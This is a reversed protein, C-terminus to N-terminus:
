QNLYIINSSIYFKLERFKHIDANEVLPTESNKSAIHLIYFRGKLNKNIKIKSKFQM